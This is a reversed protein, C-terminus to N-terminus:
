FISQRGNRYVIAVHEWQSDFARRARRSHARAPMATGGGTIAGTNNIHFEYNEDKSLISKLETGLSTLNIWATVTLEDTLDIDNNDPIRIFNTGNMIAGNCIRAPGNVTGNVTNGNANLGSSDQVVENTGCECRDTSVINWSWDMPLMPRWEAPIFVWAM